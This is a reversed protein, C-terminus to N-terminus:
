TVAAVHSPHAAEVRAENIAHVVIQPDAPRAMQDAERDVRDHLHPSDRRLEEILAITKASKQKALIALELTLLERHRALLDDRRQTTLIVVGIYLSAM